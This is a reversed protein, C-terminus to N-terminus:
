RRKVRTVRTKIGKGRVKFRATKAHTSGKPLALTVTLVCYQGRQEIRSTTLTRTRTGATIRASVRKPCTAGTRRVAFRTLVVKDSRVVAPAATRHSDPPAPVGTVRPLPPLVPLEADAEAPDLDTVTEPDPDTAPESEDGPPDDDGTPLGTRLGSIGAVTVPVVAPGHGTPMRGDGLGVYSVGFCRMGGDALRVCGFEGALDIAAANDVGPLTVPADPDIGEDLQDTFLDLDGNIAHFFQAFQGRCWVNDDRVWCLSDSAPDIAVDGAEEVGGVPAPAFSAFGLSDTMGQGWCTVSGDDILACAADNSTRVKVAGEIGVVDIASVSGAPEEVGFPKDHNSGWCAVQGGERVACAFGSGADIQVADSLGAVPQAENELVTGGPDGEWLEGWCSVTGGQLLACATRRGVSVAEADSIGTVTVPEFLSDGVEDGGGLSGGESSPKGLCKVLGGIVACGIAAGADVSSAGESGPVEWAEQAITLGRLEERHSWENPDPEARFPGFGVCAVGGGSQRLGCGFSQGVTVVSANDLGAVRGGVDYVTRALPRGSGTLGLYDNGWCAVTGTTRIVCPAYTSGTLKAADTVGPITVPTLSASEPLGVMDPVIWGWCKVQRDSLIACARAEDISLELAGAIGEVATPEHSGPEDSWWGLPRGWCAVAGGTTLACSQDSGVAVATVGHLGGVTQPSSPGQEPEPFDVGLRGTGNDLGWCKVTGDSLAACAHRQGISVSVAGDVGPVVSPGFLGSPNYNWGDCSNGGGNGSLGNEDCGWCVVKGDARVVCAGGQGVSLSQAGTVGDIMRATGIREPPHEASGVDDLALIGMYTNGWCSVTGASLLACGNSTSTAVTVADGVGAVQLPATSTQSTGGGLQGDAGHGWCWVTGDSKAVCTNVTEAGSVEVGATLSGVVCALLTLAVPVARRAQLVAIAM